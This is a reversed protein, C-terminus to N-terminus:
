RQVRGSGDGNTLKGVEAISVQNFDGEISHKLASAVVAFEITEHMSKGTFLGHILGAGFRDSASISSRLTIAVKKFGFIDIRQKAVSKYAEKDLKGQSIDTNEAQIGFVDKADEENAICVDVYKCLETM